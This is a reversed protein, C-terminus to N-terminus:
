AHPNLHNTLGETIQLNTAILLGSKNTMQLKQQSHLLIAVNTLIDM